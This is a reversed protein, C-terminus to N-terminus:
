SQQKTNKKGRGIFHAIYFCGVGIIIRIINGIIGLGDITLSFIFAGLFIFLIAIVWRLNNVVGM